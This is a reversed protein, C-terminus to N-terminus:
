RAVGARGRQLAMWATPLEAEALCQATVWGADDLVRAPRDIESTAASAERRERSPSSGPSPDFSQRDLVFAVATSGHERIAALHRMEEADHDVLAAVALVGGSTFTHAARAVTELGLDDDRQARALADLLGTLEMPHSATGDAVTHASVLHVVYGQRMLARGTSALASVVCEFTPSPRPARGHASSRSDLLLVARRRAPRDEQRVMLEGRHATAPWHVRRLEDGDRYQRISVDDEGHLAVMQPQEGESGRGQAPVGTSTLDYIRPLVLVEATSSLRAAVYTLGFPDRQRLSLPGLRYAGRRSSRVQYRLSRQEGRELPHLVFRPREGLHIDLHEQALYLPTVRRGVNRVTAEVTGVEDPQLRQPVPTRSVALSPARRRSLAMALLPLVTLAVGIRTLDPYGLLVGGMSTLLGLVLFAVGRPTLTQLLSM